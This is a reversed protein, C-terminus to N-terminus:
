PAPGGQDPRSSPVKRVIGEKGSEDVWLESGQVAVSKQGQFSFLNYLISLDSPNLLSPPAVAINSKVLSGIRGDALGAVYQKEGGKDHSWNVNLEHEKMIKNGLLAYATTAADHDRFHIFGYCSTASGIKNKQPKQIKVSVVTPTGIGHCFTQLEGGKIGLPLNGVYLASSM